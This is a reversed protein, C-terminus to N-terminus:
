ETSAQVESAVAREPLPHGRPTWNSGTSIGAICKGWVMYRRESPRPTEGRPRILDEPNAVIASLNHQSACGKNPWPVTNPDRGICDTVSRLRNGPDSIFYAGSVSTLPLYGVNVADLYTPRLIRAPRKLPALLEAEITPFPGMTDDNAIYAYCPRRASTIEDAIQM